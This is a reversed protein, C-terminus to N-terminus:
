PAYRTASRAASAGASSATIRAARGCASAQTPETPPPWRGGAATAPTVNPSAWNTLEALPSGFAINIPPITITPPMTRLLDGTSRLMTVGSARSVLSYSTTTTGAFEGYLVIPSRAFANM